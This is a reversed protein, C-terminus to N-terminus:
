AASRAKGVHTLLCMSGLPLNVREVDVMVEHKLDQSADPAEVVM